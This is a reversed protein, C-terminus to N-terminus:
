KMFRDDCPLPFEESFGITGDEIVEKLDSQNWLQADSASGNAGVNVWTFKYDAHVVAM